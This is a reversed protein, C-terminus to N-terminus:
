TVLTVDFLFDPVSGFSLFTRVELLMSSHYSQSAESAGSHLRYLSHNSSSSISSRNQPDPPNVSSYYKHYLPVLGSVKNILPFDESIWLIERDKHIVQVGM